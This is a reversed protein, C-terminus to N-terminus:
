PGVGVSSPAESRTEDTVAQVAEDQGRWTLGGALPEQSVVGGGGGSKDM